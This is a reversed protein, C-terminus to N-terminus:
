KPKLTAQSTNPSRQQVVRMEWFDVGM